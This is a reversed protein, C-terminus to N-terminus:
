VRISFKLILCAFILFATAAGSIIGSHEFFLEDEIGFIYALQRYYKGVLLLM